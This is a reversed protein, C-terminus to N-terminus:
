VKPYKKDVGKVYGMFMNNWTKDELRQMLRRKLLSNNMNQVIIRMLKYYNTKTFQKYENRVRRLHDIFAVGNNGGNVPRAVGEYTSARGKGNQLIGRHLSRYKLNGSAWNVSRNEAVRIPFSKWLNIVHVYPPEDNQRDKSFYLNKLNGVTNVGVGTLVIKMGRHKSTITTSKETPTVILEYSISGPNKLKPTYIVTFTGNTKNHSAVRLLHKAYSLRNGNINMVSIVNKAIHNNTNIKNETNSDVPSPPTHQIYKNSQPNYNVWSNNHQNILIPPM